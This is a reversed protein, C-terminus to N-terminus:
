QRAREVNGSYTIAMAGAVILLAGIISAQDPWVGFAVFDYVTAFVLTSYLLPFVYSADGRKTAQIVLAQAAAMAFGLGALLLWDVTGPSQWVFLAASLSILAGISNNIFLIRVAPEKMSLRKIFISEFGMFLAAALAILAAMQFANAGPRILVLAGVFSILVAMWRWAGPRERLMVGALGMTVLPSLFALATADSLPMHAAAAFMCTVGLWGCLSRMIHLHWATNEFGPRILATFVLIALWAFVFRGASIQLPHLATGGAGLGLAKALLTTLAILACACVMVIAALFAASM